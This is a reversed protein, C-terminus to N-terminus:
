NTRGEAAKTAMREIIELTDWNRIVMRLGEADEGQYLHTFGIEALRAKLQKLGMNTYRDVRAM